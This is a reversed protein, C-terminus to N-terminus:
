CILNRIGGNDLIEEIYWVKVLNELPILLETAGENVKNIILMFVTGLPTVHPEPISKDKYVACLKLLVDVHREYLDTSHKNTLFSIVKLYDIAHVPTPERSKFFSEPFKSKKLKPSASQLSKSALHKSPSGSHILPPLNSIIPPNLFVLQQAEVSVYPRVYNAMTTDKLKSTPSVPISTM